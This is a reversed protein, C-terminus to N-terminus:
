GTPISKRKYCKPCIPVEDFWWGQQAFAEAAKRHAKPDSFGYHNVSVTGLDRCFKCLLQFRQGNGASRKILFGELQEPTAREASM